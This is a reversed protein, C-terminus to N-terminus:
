GGGAARRQKELTCKTKDDTTVRKNKPMALKGGKYGPKKQKKPRMRGTERMEKTHGGRRSTTQGVECERKIDVTSKRCGTQIEQSGTL